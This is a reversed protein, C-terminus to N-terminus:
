PLGGPNPFAWERFDLACNNTDLWYPFRELSYNPFSVLPCAVIGPLSGTGYTIADVIQDAPNRLIVEDGSNGLQLTAAPDGWLPDDILNPVAPDSNLIEFDPNFGYRAFFATATTAVVITEGSPIITGAPFRRVDEFDTLHVADGLSYSSIDMPLPTPNVLEIFEADDPGPPDYLVESILVHSVPGQFNKVMVPLWLHHPWDRQFVDALLAYAENSQVQLAVERNGKNSQETGNLSGAHIYGTGDLSVLVM